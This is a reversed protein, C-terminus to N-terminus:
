TISLQLNHVTQNAAEKKDALLAFRSVHLQTM